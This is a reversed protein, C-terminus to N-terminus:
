ESNVKNFTKIIKMIEIVENLESRILKEVNEWKERLSKDTNLIERQRYKMILIGISYKEFAKDYNGLLSQERACKILKNLDKITYIDKKKEEKLLNNKETFTM